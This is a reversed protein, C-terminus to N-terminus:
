IQQLLITLTDNESSTIHEDIFCEYNSIEFTADNYPSTNSETAEFISILKVLKISVIRKFSPM